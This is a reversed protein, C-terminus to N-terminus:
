LGQGPKTEKGSRASVKDRREADKKPGAKPGLGGSDGGRASACYCGKVRRTVAIPEPRFGAQVVQSLKSRSRNREKDSLEQKANSVARSRRWLFQHISGGTEAEQLASKSPNPWGAQSLREGTM